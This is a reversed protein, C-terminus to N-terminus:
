WFCFTTRMRSRQSVIYLGRMLGKTLWKSPLRRTVWCMSRWRAGVMVLASKVSSGSNLNLFSLYLCKEVVRIAERRIPELVALLVAFYGVFVAFQNGLFVPVNLSFLDLRQEFGQVLLGEGRGIRTSRVLSYDTIRPKVGKTNKGRPSTAKRHEKRATPNGHGPSPPPAIQFRM